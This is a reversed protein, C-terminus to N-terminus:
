PRLQITLSRGSEMDRLVLKAPAADKPGLFLFRGRMEGGPRVRTELVEHSAVRVLLQAFDLPEGTADYVVPEYNMSSVVQECHNPNRFVVTLSWVKREPDGELGPFGAPLLAMREALVDFAGLSAFQGFAVTATDTAANGRESAFPGVLPRVKGELPVTIQTGQDVVRLAAVTAKAPLQIVTYLQADMGPQLTGIAFDGSNVQFAELVYDYATGEQDIAQFVFSDHGLQAVRQQPNKVSYRVLLLKEDKDALFTFRKTSVRLLYDVADIRMELEEGQPGIRQFDSVPNGEAAGALAFLALFLPFVRKM